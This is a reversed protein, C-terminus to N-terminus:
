SPGGHPCRYIEIREPPKTVVCSRLLRSGEGLVARWRSLKQHYPMSAHAPSTSPLVEYCIREFLSPPKQLVKRDYIEKARKGNFCILEVGPHTRLFGNFDNAEVTSLQIASDLSGSRQGAACVDWLAIGNEKLL